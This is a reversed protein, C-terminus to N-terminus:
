DLLPSSSNAPDTMSYHLALNQDIYFHRIGMSSNLPDATFSYLDKNVTGATAYGYGSKIGSGIKNDILNASTLGPLDTYTGYTNWYLAEASALTRLSGIASSENANMKSKVLHPMALAAIIGIVAVVILLEILTFGKVKHNLEIV